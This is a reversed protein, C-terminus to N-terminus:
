CGHAELYRAARESARRREAPSRIRAHPSVPELEEMETLTTVFRAVASRTTLWRGGVRVAELKVVAGRKSKQGKMVWRWVTAPNVKGKGRYAPFLRGTAAIGLGEGAEIEALLTRVVEGEMKCRRKQFSTSVVDEVDPHL